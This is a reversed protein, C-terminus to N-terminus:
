LRVSVRLLRQKAELERSVGSCVCEVNDSFFPGGGKFSEINEGKCPLSEPVM